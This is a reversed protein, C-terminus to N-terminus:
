KKFIIDIFISSVLIVIISYMGKIIGFRFIGLLIIILNVIFNSISVKIKFFKNNILNITSVGGSSFGLRYILAGTIGCITGAVISFIFTNNITFNPIFSTIKISIPYLFSSAVISKTVDKSLLFYSLILTTINILLIVISDKISIFSTIILSLGQTGGTVLKLPKLILNYNLAAIFLYLFLFLYKKM